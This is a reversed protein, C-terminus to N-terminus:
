SRAESRRQVTQKMVIITIINTEGYHKVSSTSLLQNLSGGGGGGGGARWYNKKRSVTGLHNRKQLEEMVFVRRNMYISFKVVM